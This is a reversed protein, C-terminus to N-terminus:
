SERKANDIDEKNEGENTSQEILCKEGEGEIEEETEERTRERM